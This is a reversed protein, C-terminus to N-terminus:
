RKMAIIVVVVIGVAMVIMLPNLVDKKADTLVDDVGGSILNSWTWGGSTGGSAGPQPSPTPTTGPLPETESAPYIAFSQADNCIEVFGLGETVLSAKFILSGSAPMRGRFTIDLTEGGKIKFSKSDHRVSSGEYLCLRGYSTGMWLNSHVPVIVTYLDNPRVRATHRINGDIKLFKGGDPSCSKCAM